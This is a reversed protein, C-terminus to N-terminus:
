ARAKNGQMLLPLPDMEGGGASSVRGKKRTLIFDAAFGRTAFGTALGAAMEAWMAPLRKGYASKDPGIREASHAEM